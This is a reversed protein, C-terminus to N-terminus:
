HSRGHIAFHVSTLSVKEFDHSLSHSPAYGPAKQITISIHKPIPHFYVYNSQDLLMSIKVCHPYPLYWKLVLVSKCNSEYECEKNKIYFWVIIQYYIYFYYEHKYVGIARHKSSHNNDWIIFSHRGSCSQLDILYVSYHLTPFWTRMLSM